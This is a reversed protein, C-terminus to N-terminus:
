FWKKGWKHFYFRMSNVHYRFLIKNKHSGQEWKHIVSVNPVYVLRSVLNVRRCLDADELYMFFGEDFGHLRSFLESRIVLFSGQGFPVDFVSNYDKNQLTHEAKRKKFLSKCFMRIYMDFITLEKRYVPWIKGNTDTIKPICMGIDLNNDLFGILGSFVDENLIIDPNVIAHYESDIWNLVQNHGKGFGINDKERIYKVDRYRALWECFGSVELENDAGNDIIYITKSVLPSTHREISEITIKLDDYNHYAVIGISLKQM